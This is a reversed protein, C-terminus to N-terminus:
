WMRGSLFTLRLFTVTDHEHLSLPETESATEKDNVFIRVLGDHYAELATRIAKEEDAEAPNYHVGFAIKGIEAMQDMQGATPPQETDAAHQRYAALCSRVTEAILGGVTDPQHLLPFPVARFRDRKAGLQKMTVLIEM